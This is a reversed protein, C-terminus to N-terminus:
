AEREQEMEILTMIAYNALDILTDTISEDSVKQEARCLKKLRNMKDVMRTVASVIGIERYTDGFSDDYDHNKAVYLATLGKCIEKHQEAKKSM